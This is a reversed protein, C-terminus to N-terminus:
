FTVVKDTLKFLNILDDETIPNIPNDDDGDREKKCDMFANYLRVHCFPCYHSKYLRFLHSGDVVGRYQAQAGPIVSYPNECFNCTYVDAGIICCSGVVLNLDCVGCDM